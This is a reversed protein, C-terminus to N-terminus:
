ASQYRALENLVEYLKADVIEKCAVPDAELALAESLEDAIALLRSKANLVLAAWAARVDKAAVLSHEREQLELQRLRLRVIMERLEVDFKSLGNLRIPGSEPADFEPAHVAASVAVRRATPQPPKAPRSPEHNSGLRRARQQSDANREWDRRIKELSKAPDIRGAAVAKNVATHTVGLERAIARNSLGM